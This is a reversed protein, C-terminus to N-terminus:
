IHLVLITCLVGTHEAGLNVRQCHETGNAEKM